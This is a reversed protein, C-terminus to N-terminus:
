NIKRVFFNNIKGEAQLRDAAQKAAQSTSYKGITVRFWQGNKDAIPPLVEAELRKARLEKAQREADQTTPYSGVQISFHTGLRGSRESYKVETPLTNKKEGPSEIGAKKLAELLEADDSSKDENNEHKSAVEDTKRAADEPSHSPPAAHSEATHTDSAHPDAAHTEEKAPSPTAEAGLHGGAHGLGKDLEKEVEETKVAVQKGMSEGYKVGITFAFVTVLVFLIVLLVVEKREVVYLSPKNSM